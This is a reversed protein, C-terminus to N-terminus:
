VLRDPDKYPLPKLLVTNVVSFIASNAGIGLALTIIAIAAFAPQRIITRFGYRLDQWLDAIMNHRGTGLVVPEYYFKETRHLERRLLDEDSLDALALRRATEETAGGALSERYRDSLHQSLEEVIEVERTPSLNLGALRKIIEPKWDSM